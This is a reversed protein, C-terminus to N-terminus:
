NEDVCETPTELVCEDKIISIVIEPLIGSSRSLEFVARRQKGAQVHITISAEPLYNQGEKRLCYLVYKRPTGSAFPSHLLCEGGLLLHITVTSQTIVM